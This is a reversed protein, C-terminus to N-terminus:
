TPEGGRSLVDYVWDGILTVSAATLMIMVAPALSLWPNTTFLEQGAALMAGWAASGAEIGLGLYALGSFSIMAGVFDLLFTALIIPLINPLIHM